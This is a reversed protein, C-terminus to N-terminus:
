HLIDEEMNEFCYMMDLFTLCNKLRVKKESRTRGLTKTSIKYYNTAIIDKKYGGKEFVFVKGDYMLSVEIIIFGNKDYTKFIKQENNLSQIEEAVKYILDFVLKQDKPSLVDPNITEDDKVSSLENWFGSGNMEHMFYQIESNEYNEKFTDLVM